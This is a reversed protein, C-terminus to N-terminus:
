QANQDDDRCAQLAELLKMRYWQRDEASILQAGDAEASPDSLGDLFDDFLKEPTM